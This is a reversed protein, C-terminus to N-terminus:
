ISSLNKEFVRLLADFDQDTLEHLKKALNKGSKVEDPHINPPLLKLAKLENALAHRVSTSPYKPDEIKGFCCYITGDEGITAARGRIPARLAFCPRKAYSEIFLGKELAWSLIRTMRQKLLGDEMSKVHEEIKEYTWLVRDDRGIEKGIQAGFIDSIIIETDEAFYQRVELGIIQFSTFRNIFQIMNKVSSPIADMVVLVTYYAKSLNLMLNSWFKKESELDDFQLPETLKRMLEKKFKTFDNGYTTWMASVYDLVQSLVKRKEPNKYLGTEILYIGGGNGLALVDISGSSTPFEKCSTIIYSDDNIDEVPILAINNLLLERLHNESIFEGSKVPMIVGDKRVIIM